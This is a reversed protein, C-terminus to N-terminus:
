AAGRLQIEAVLEETAINDTEKMEVGEKVFSDLYEARAHWVIEGPRSCEGCVFIKEQEELIEATDAAMEVEYEGEWLVNIINDAM